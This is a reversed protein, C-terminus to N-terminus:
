QGHPSAFNSDAVTPGEGSRFEVDAGFPVLASPHLGLDHQQQEIIQPSSGLAAMLLHRWQEYSRPV